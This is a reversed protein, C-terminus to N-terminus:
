LQQATRCQRGGTRTEEEKLLMRLGTELSTSPAWGIVERLLTCDPRRWDPDGSLRQHFEYTPEVELVRAMTQALELISVTEESGLNMVLPLPSRHFMLEVLAEVVDEIWTFTRSQNGDGELPVPLNNILARHFNPIVRGRGQLTPDMHPGYVNFLRLAAVDQGLSHAARLLEEGIIKAASYPSKDSLLLHTAPHEERMSRNLDARGANGYAESSSTYLLRCGNEMSLDLLLETGHVNPRIVKMPDSLFLRPAAISALHFIGSLPPLDRIDLNSLDTEIVTLGEKPTLPQSTSHNDVVVVRHGLKLLRSVLHQGIFGSGGTVLLSQESQDLM